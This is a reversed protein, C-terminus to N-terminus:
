AVTLLVLGSHPPLTVKQAIKNGYLDVFNEGGPLTVTYTTNPSPNVLSLGHTYSRWYVQQEKTMEGLPSGIGANYEQYRLDVGYEQAGTIAIYAAHEKCMLYSALAWQIESRGVSHFENEIFYAKHLQQVSQIFQIKQVWQDGTLYGQSYETFGAEDVIGDVHGVVQQLAPDDPSFSPSLGLNPILALPHHLLRLAHQMKTIWTAVDASWQPDNIQGTYRQVWKGNQYYGCAGILNEMNVNDAAIADYGNESAPVAYTQVEWAIVAPNTFNFPINPLGDEYAPTKRDCQYLIWDPHVKQWYALNHSADQNGFVGSDRFFSFYYSLFISPNTSRFAAVNNVSTGWVFGYYPAIASPNDINYDFSQFPHVGNWTDIFPRTGPLSSYTTAPTLMWTPTGTATIKGNAGPTLSCGSFSLLLLLSLLVLLRRKRLNSSLVM